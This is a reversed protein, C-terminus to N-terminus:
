VVHRTSEPLFQGQDAGEDTKEDNEGCYGTTDTCAIDGGLGGREVGVGQGGVMRDLSGGALGAVCACHHFTYASGCSSAQISFASSSLGPRATAWARTRWAFDMAPSTSDM